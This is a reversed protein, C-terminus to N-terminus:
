ESCLNFYFQFDIENKGLVHKKLLYLMGKQLQLMEWMSFSHEKSPRVQHTTGWSMQWQSVRSLHESYGVSIEWGKETGLIVLLLFYFTYLLWTNPWILIVSYNRISIKKDRNCLILHLGWFAKFILDKGVATVLKLSHEWDLLSCEKQWMSM